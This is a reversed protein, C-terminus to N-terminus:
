DGPAAAMRLSAVIADCLEARGEHTCLANVFHLRGDDGVEALIRGVVSGRPAQYAMTVDLSRAERVLVWKHYNIVPSKLSEVLQDLRESSADGLREDSSSSTVVVDSGGRAYAIVQLEGRSM